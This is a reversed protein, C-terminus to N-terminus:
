KDHLWIGNENIAYIFRYQRHGRRLITNDSDLLWAAGDDRNVALVAHYARARRDWTVLVRMDEAAFGLERLMFYKATAYDECDGGRQIFELLTVWHNRLKQQGNASVSPAPMSRDRRYMRRNVYRNVLNLQKDESLAAGKVLVHRMSRLRGECTTEDEICQEIVQRERSHRALMGSWAPLASASTLYDEEGAFQYAAFVPVALLLCLASSATLRGALQIRRRSM